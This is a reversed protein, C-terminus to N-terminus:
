NASRVKKVNKKTQKAKGKSGKMCCNGVFDADSSSAEDTSYLHSHSPCDFDTQENCFKCSANAGPSIGGLKERFETPGIYADCSAALCEIDSGTLLYYLKLVLRICPNLGIKVDRENAQCSTRFGVSSPDPPKGSVSLLKNISVHGLGGINISDSAAGSPKFKKKTSKTHSNIYNYISTSDWGNFQNSLENQFYFIAFLPFALFIIMYKTKSKSASMEQKVARETDELSCVTSNPQVDDQEVISDKILDYM